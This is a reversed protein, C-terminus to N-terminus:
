RWKHLPDAHAVALCRKQIGHRARGIDPGKVHRMQLLQSVFQPLLGNIDYRTGAAMQTGAEPDDLQGYGQMVHEVRRVVLEDPVNAM